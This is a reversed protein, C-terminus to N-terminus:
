QPAAPQRVLKVDLAGAQDVFVECASAPRCIAFHKVGAPINVFSGPGLDKTETRRHFFGDDRGGGGFSFRPLAHAAARDPRRSVSHPVRARGEGGTGLSRGLPARPSRRQTRERGELGIRRVIRGRFRAPDRSRGARPWFRRRRACPRSCDQVHSPLTPSRGRVRLTPARVTRGSESPWGVEARARRPEHPIRRGHLLADRQRAFIDPGPVSRSGHRAADRRVRSLRALVVRRPSQQARGLPHPGAASISDPDPRHREPVPGRLLREHRRADRAADARQSGAALTSSSKSVQQLKGASVDYRVIVPSTVGPNDAVFLSKGDFTAALQGEYRGEYQSDLVTGTAVDILSPTTWEWADMVAIRDVGLPAVDFDVYRTPIFRKFTLSEADIQALGQTGTHGVYLFTGTPDIELDTPGSGVLVQRLATGTAPDIEVVVQKLTDLGYLRPRKPDAILKAFGHNALLGPASERVGLTKGGVLDTLNACTM